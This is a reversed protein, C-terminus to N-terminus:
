PKSTEAVGPLSQTTVRKKSKYEDRVPILHGTQLPHGLNFSLALSIRDWCPSHRSHKCNGDM